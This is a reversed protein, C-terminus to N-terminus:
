SGFAKFTASHPPTDADTVTCTAPNDTTLLTAGSTITFGPPLAVLATLGSCTTIGKTCATTAAGRCAIFNITSLNAADAAVQQVALIKIENRVAAVKLFFATSALSLLVILIVLQLKTRDSKRRDSFRFGAVDSRRRNKPGNVGRDGNRRSPAALSFGAAAVWQPVPAPLALCRAPREICGRRM